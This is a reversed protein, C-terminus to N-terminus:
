QQPRTVVSLSRAGGRVRVELGEDADGPASRLDVGGGVARFRQADLVLNAAGGNITVHAPVGDPRTITVANVGGTVDVTTTGVPRPLQLELSSIGGRVTVSAVDTDRLDFTSHALGGQIEVHWRRDADLTITGSTRFHAFPSRRYQVVVTDGEERTTPRGGHFKATFLSGDTSSTVVTLRAAGNLFRLTAEPAGAGRVAVEDVDDDTPTGETGIGARLRLTEEHLMPTSRTVYDIIAALQDDDYRAAMAASASLMPVFATAVRALADPV